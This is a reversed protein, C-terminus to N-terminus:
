SARRAAAGARLQHSDRGAWEADGSDAAGIFAEVPDGSVEAPLREALLDAAVRDPSQGRRAAEAELVAALQDPLQVTMVM